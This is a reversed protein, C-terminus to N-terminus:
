SDIVPMIIANKYKESEKLLQLLNTDEIVVKKSQLVWIM